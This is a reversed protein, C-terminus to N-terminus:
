NTKMETEAIEDDESTKISIFDRNVLRMYQAIQDLYKRYPAREEAALSSLYATMLRIGNYTVHQDRGFPSSKQLDALLSRTSHVTQLASELDVVGTLYSELLKCRFKGCVKPREPDGYRTCGNQKLLPCPQYFAVGDGHTHVKLGLSRSSMMEDKFLHAKVFLSGDCCLACEMCLKSGNPTDQANNM